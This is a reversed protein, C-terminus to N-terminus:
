RTVPSGAALIGHSTGAPTPVPKREPGAAPDGEEGKTRNSTKDQEVNGGGAAVHMGVVVSLISM